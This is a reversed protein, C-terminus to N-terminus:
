VLLPSAEKASDWWANGLRVQEAPTKAGKIDKEALSKLKENSGNALMLLGKDWDDRAFCLYRGVALNADPDTPDKKLTGRAEKADAYAKALKDVEKSRTAVEQLRALQNAQKVMEKALDFNDERIAEDVVQLAAEAIARKQEATRVKEATQAIVDAKSQAASVDYHVAMVNIAEFALEGLFSDLAVNKAEQLLVFRDTSDQAEKAKQLLKKALAAKDSNKYDEKYADRITVM